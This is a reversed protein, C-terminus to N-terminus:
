GRLRKRRMLRPDLSADKEIFVDIMNTDDFMVNSVKAKPISMSEIHEQEESDMEQNNNLVNVDTIFIWDGNMGIYEGEYILGNDMVIKINSM